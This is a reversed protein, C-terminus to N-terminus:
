KINRKVMVLFGLYYMTKSFHQCVQALMNANWHSGRFLKLSLINGEILRQTYLEM